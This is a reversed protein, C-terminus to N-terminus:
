HYVTAKSNDGPWHFASSSLGRYRGDLRADLIEDRKEDQAQTRQRLQIAETQRAFAPGHLAPPNKSKVKPASRGSPLRDEM